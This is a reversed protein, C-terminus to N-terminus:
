RAKDSRHDFADVKTNQEKTTRGRCVMLHGLGMSPHQRLSLKIRVIRLDPSHIRDYLGKEMEVRERHDIARYLYPWNQLTLRFFM